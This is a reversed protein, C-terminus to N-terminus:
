KPVGSCGFHVDATSLPSFFNCVIFNTRLINIIVDTMHRIERVPCCHVFTRWRGDITNMTPSPASSIADCRVVVGASRFVLNGKTNAAWSTDREGEMERRLSKLVRISVCRRQVFYENRHFSRAEFAINIKALM